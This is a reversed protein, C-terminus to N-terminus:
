PTINESPDNIKYACDFSCYLDDVKTEFERGCRKCKRPLLTIGAFNYLIGTTNKKFSCFDIEKIHYIINV